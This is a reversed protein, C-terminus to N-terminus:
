RPLSTKRPFLGHSAGCGRSHRGLTELFWAIDRRRLLGHIEMSTGYLKCHGRCPRHRSRRLLTGSTVTKRTKRQTYQGHVLRLHGTEWCHRGKWPAASGKPSAAHREIHLTAGQPSRQKSARLRQLQHQHRHEALGTPVTKTHIAWHRRTPYYATSCVPASPKSQAAHNPAGPSGTSTPTGSRTQSGPPFAACTPSLKLM